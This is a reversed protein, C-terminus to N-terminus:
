TKKRTVRATEGCAPCRFHDTFRKGGIMPETREFTMTTLCTCVAVLNVEVEDTDHEVQMHLLYTELPQDPLLRIHCHKCELEMTPTIM